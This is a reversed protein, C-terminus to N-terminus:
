ESIPSAGGRDIDGILLVPADAMSAVRMNVLDYHALNPEVPSGAGEIILLDYNRATNSIL